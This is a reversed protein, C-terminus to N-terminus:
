LYDSTVPCCLLLMACVDDAAQRITQGDGSGRDSYRMCYRNAEKTYTIYYLGASQAESAKGSFKCVTTVM